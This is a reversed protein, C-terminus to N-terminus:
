RSCDVLSSHVFGKKPGNLTYEVAYWIDSGSVTQGKQEKVLKIQNERVLEDVLASTTNAESRVRARGVGQSVNLNCTDPLAKPLLTGGGGQGPQNSGSCKSSDGSCDVVAPDQDWLGVVVPTGTQVREFLWEINSPHNRVCGSSQDRNRPNSDTVSSVHAMDVGHLGFIRAEHFWLAKKGLPNNAACAAASKGEGNNWPPCVEKQHIAFVGKPTAKGARATAVKWKSKPVGNEFYTVMNTRANVRVARSAGLTRNVLAENQWSNSDTGSQREQIDVSVSDKKPADASQHRSWRALNNVGISSRNWIPRSKEL